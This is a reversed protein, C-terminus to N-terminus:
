FPVGARQKLAATEEETMGELKGRELQILVPATGAEVLANLFSLVKGEFAFIDYQKAALEMQRVLGVENSPRFVDLMRERLESWWEVEEGTEEDYFMNHVAEEDKEMDELDQMELDLISNQGLWREATEWTDQVPNWGYSFASLLAPDREGFILCRELSAQLMFEAALEFGPRHVVWGYDKRIYGNLAMFAPLLNLLSISEDSPYQSDAQEPNVQLTQFLHQINRKQHENTIPLAEKAAINISQEDTITTKRKSCRFTTQMSLHDLDTKTPSTATRILRRVFLVTFQLLRLRPRLESTKANGSHTTYYYNIFSDVMNVPLDPDGGQPTPHGERHAQRAGLLAVTAKYLLFDLIMTDAELRVEADSVKTDGM